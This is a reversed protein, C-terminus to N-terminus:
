NAKYYNSLGELKKIYQVNNIQLDSFWDGVEKHVPQYWTYKSFYDRLEKSGFYFNNRAFFYNRLISLDDKSWGKLDDETYDRTSGIDWLREYKDEYIVYGNGGNTNDTNETAYGSYFDSSYKFRKAVSFAVFLFLLGAVVFIPLKFKQFATKSNTPQEVNNSDKSAPQPENTPTLQESKLTAISNEQEMPSKQVDKHEQPASEPKPTTTQVKKSLTVKLVSSDAPKSADSTRVPPTTDEQKEPVANETPKNTGLIKAKESALDDKNLIGEEYLKQLEMFRTIQEQTM